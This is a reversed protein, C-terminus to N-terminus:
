IRPKCGEPDVALGGGGQKTRAVASPGLAPPVVGNQKSQEAEPQPSALHGAQAQLVDVPSRALDHHAALPTVLVTERQRAVDTLRDSGVELLPTLVARHVALHEQPSNGRDPREPRVPDRPDNATGAYPRSHWYHNPNTLLVNDPVV